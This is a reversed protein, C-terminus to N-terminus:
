LLTLKVTLTLLGFIVIMNMWMWKIYLKSLQLDKLHHELKRHLIMSQYNHINLFHHLIGSDRWYIKYNKVQRKKINAHYPRLIRIMFTQHLIDLYHKATTHSIGLSQAIENSNFIQGHYHSLMTWFQRLIQPNVRIGLMNLDRELYSKIYSTRWVFSKSDNSQLFSKPYGGRIWLNHMDRTEEIMFPLLEM